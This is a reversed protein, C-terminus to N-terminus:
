DIMGNFGVVFTRYQFQYLENQKEQILGIKM